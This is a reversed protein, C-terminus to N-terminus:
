GKSKPNRIMCYLKCVDGGDVCEIEKVLEFGMKEYIGVNPYGKSSELYCPMNERDAKDMVNEMLKKGVGMGRAKSDVCVVNCFYYGRPDQWIADHATQQVQKWIWYRRVNLGGRGLFRINNMLQRFSLLWDQAWVSWSQTTSHAQPSYWWAVGVVTGAPLRIDDNSKSENAARTIKAVSIPCDCNIGYQFHAALSAANRQINFKSSDNFAWRFYPDNAFAKQVCDVAGPIDTQALPVIEISM